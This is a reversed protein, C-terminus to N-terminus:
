KKPIFKAVATNPITIVMEHFDSFGVTITVTKQFSMLSITIALDICNLDKVSKYCTFNIYFVITM